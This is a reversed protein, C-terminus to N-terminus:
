KSKPGEPLETWYRVRQIDPHQPLVADLEFEVDDGSEDDWCKYYDNYTLIRAENWYNDWILVRQCDEPHEKEIDRWM